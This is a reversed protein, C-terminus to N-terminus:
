ELKQFYQKADKRSRTRNKENERRGDPRTLEGRLNTQMMEKM